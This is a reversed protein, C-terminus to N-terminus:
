YREKPEQRAIVELRPLIEEAFRDRVARARPEDERAPVAVGVILCAGKWAPFIAYASTYVDRVALTATKATVSQVDVSAGNWTATRSGDTHLDVEFADVWPKAWQEFNKQCAGPVTNDDVHTVFGAVIAHHDRGYRFGVLSPVGWFRVRMWNPADPLLVRVSDQKDTRGALPASKLQELAAAHAVGGNGGQAPRGDDRPPPSAQVPMNATSIRSSCGLALWSGAFCVLVLRM